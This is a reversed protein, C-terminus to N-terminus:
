RSFIELETIRSHDERGFGVLVRVATTPVPVFTVVRKCLNNRVVTARTTWNVGDADLTQVEFSFLGAQACIASSDPESVPDAPNDSQASYVVVRGISLVRGFDVRLWDPFDYQSGDKWGGGEGWLGGMREGDIASSAPFGSSFSSSASATSVGDTARNPNDDQASATACLLALLLCATLTHRM